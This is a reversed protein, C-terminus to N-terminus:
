LDSAYPISIVDHSRRLDCQRTYIIMFEKNLPRQHINKLYLVISITYQNHILKRLSDRVMKKM